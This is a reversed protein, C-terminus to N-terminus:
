IINVYLRVRFCAPTATNESHTDDYHIYCYFILYTVWKIKESRYCTRHIARPVSAYMYAADGKYYSRM